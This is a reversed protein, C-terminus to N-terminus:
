VLLEIGIQELYPDLINTSRSYSLRTINRRYQRYFVEVYFADLQYLVVSCGLISRKGIYVGEEYILELQDALPLIQFETIKM